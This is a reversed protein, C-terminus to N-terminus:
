STKVLTFSMYKKGYTKIHITGMSSIHHPLVMSKTLDKSVKAREVLSRLAVQNQLQRVLAKTM